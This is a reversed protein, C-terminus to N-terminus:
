RRSSTLVPQPTNLALWLNAVAEEPTDALYDGCCEKQCDGNLEEYYANDSPYARWMVGISKGTKGDVLEGDPVRCLSEFGDGCAEILESLTPVSLDTKNDVVSCNPDEWRYENTKKDLKYYSPYYRQPFGAEKLEKALEYTM